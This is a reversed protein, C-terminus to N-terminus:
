NGGSTVEMRAALKAAGALVLEIACSLLVVTVTYAFLDVTELYLKSEYLMLGISDRTRGIVEAAVGAKWALGLGTRAAALMYPMVSPIYVAGVLKAGRVRYVKAMEVLRSDVNALGESLNACVAPLVMLFAIFVPMKDSKMWVLALIIFSPVPTAKVVTLFPRMFEKVFESLHMLVSLVCGVLFALAFGTLIRELSGFNQLWFEKQGCLEFFREFVARPSPLLLEQGVKASFYHWIGLWAAVSLLSVLVRATPSLRKKDRM